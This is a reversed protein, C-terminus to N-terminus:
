TVNNLEKLRRQWYNDRDIEEQTRRTYTEYPSIPRKFFKPKRNEEYRAIEEPTPIYDLYCAKVINESM